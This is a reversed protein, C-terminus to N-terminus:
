TGSPLRLVATVADHEHAVRLLARPDARGLWLNITM